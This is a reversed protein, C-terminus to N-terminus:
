SYPANPLPDKETCLSSHVCGVNGGEWGERTVARWSTRRWGWVGVCVSGAEDWVGIGKWCREFRRGVLLWREYGKAEEEVGDEGKAERRGDGM